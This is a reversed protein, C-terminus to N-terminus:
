IKIIDADYGVTAEKLVSLMTKNQIDIEPKDANSVIKVCKMLWLNSRLQEFISHNDIQLTM